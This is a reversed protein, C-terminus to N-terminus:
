RPSENWSDIKAQIVADIGPTHRTVIPITLMLSSGSKQLSALQWEDGSSSSEFRYQLRIRDKSNQPPTVKVILTDRYIYGGEFHHDLFLFGDVEYEPVMVGLELSFALDRRRPNTKAWTDKSLYLTFLFPSRPGEEREFLDAYTRFIASNDATTRRHLDWRKGRVRVVSEFHYSARIAKGKDKLKQIEPPLSVKKILLRGEVRLDGFLFRVLNNYGEESNVIGYPGSHSRHVHARPAAHVAANDIRVLGDSLPGVLDNALGFGAPYDKANTGVLCFFREAPFKGDLYDVRDPVKPTRASKKLALYRAMHKRNFNDITNETAWSMVNGLLRLDIGNHPTAYTFVKDVCQKLAPSSIRPNQLFCRCILGGMSHAILYVRFNKKDPASACTKDRVEEILEGLREAFHEVELQKGGGFSESVEDYYRLIFISRSSLPGDAIRGEEYVDRYGHDKMLRVLPSEFIYKRLEGTWAQRLKTSGLNFGMFPTASTNEVESMTGAFGRVYIIPYYPHKFKSM